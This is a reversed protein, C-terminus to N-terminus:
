SRVYMAQSAAFCAPSVAPLAPELFQHPHLRTSQMGSGTCLSCAQLLSLMCSDLDHLVINHPLVQAQLHRADAAPVAAAHRASEKHLPQGAFSPLHQQSPAVEPHNGAWGALTLCASTLATQASGCPGPRDATGAKGSGKLSRGLQRCIHTSLEKGAAGKHQGSQLALGLQSLKLLTIYPELHPLVPAPKAGKQAPPPLVARSLTNRLHSALGPNCHGQGAISALLTCCFAASPAQRLSRLAIDLGAACAQQSAPSCSHPPPPPIMDAISDALQQPGTGSSHLQAAPSAPRGSKLLAQVRSLRALQAPLCPVSDPLAQAALCGQVAQQARQAAQMADEDQSIARGRSALKSAAFEAKLLQWAPATINSYQADLLDQAAKWDGQQMSATLRLVHVQPQAGQPVQLVVLTDALLRRWLLCADEATLM